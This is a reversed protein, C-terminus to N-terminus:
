SAKNKEENRNKTLQLESQSSKIFKAYGIFNKMKNKFYWLFKFIRRQSDKTDSNSIPM